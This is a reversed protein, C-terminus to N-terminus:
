KDCSLGGAHVCSTCQRCRLLHKTHHHHPPVGDWTQPTGWRLDPPVGDWTQPTGWRLNPPVGDWTKPTGWGLDPPVRDWTQPPLGMEPLPYWRGWVQSPTGRDLGPIPYGGGVQSSTCGGSRLHPVGGGILFLCINGLIFIVKGRVIYAPPLLVALPERWCTGM